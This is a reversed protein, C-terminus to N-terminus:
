TPETALVYDKILPLVAPRLADAVDTPEGLHAETVVRGASAALDALQISPHRRSDGTWFEAVRTRPAHSLIEPLRWMTQFLEQAFAPTFIKQEDHLFRVPGYRTYMHNMTMPLMTILPDLGPFIASRRHAVSEVLADAHVRTGLLALLVHEVNRRHSRWRAEELLAFFSEVTEKQTGGRQTARALSVFATMLPDWMPGLARPGDAFLTVALERAAGNAYLDIGQEHAEEEILLDIMKTTILFRKHAVTIVVRDALPGGAAFAAALAQRGRRHRFQAFKAEPAQTVGAEQRLEALIPTAAEDDIRVAAHAFTGQPDILNEGSSGSEDAAVWVPGDNDATTRDAWMPWAPDVIKM